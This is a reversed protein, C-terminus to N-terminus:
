RDIESTSEWANGNLKELERDTVRYGDPFVWLETWAWRSHRKSGAELAARDVREDLRHFYVSGGGFGDRTVGVVVVRDGAIAADLEAASLADTSTPSGHAAVLRSWLREARKWARMPEMIAGTEGASSRLWCPRTTLDRLIQAPESSFGRKGPGPLHM